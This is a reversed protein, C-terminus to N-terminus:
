ECCEWDCDGGSVVPMGIGMWVPLACAHFWGVGGRVELPESLRLMLEPEDGEEDCPWGRACSSM